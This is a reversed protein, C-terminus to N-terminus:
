SPCSLFRNVDSLFFNCVVIELRNAGSYINVAIEEKYLYIIVSVSLHVEVYKWIYIYLGYLLSTCNLRILIIYLPPYCSYSTHLSPPPPRTHPSFGHRSILSCSELMSIVRCKIFSRLRNKKWTFAGNICTQEYKKHFKTFPFAKMLLLPSKLHLFNTFLETLALFM